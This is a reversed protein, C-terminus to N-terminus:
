EEGVEAEQEAAETKVKGKVEFCLAVVDFVAEVILSIGTFMWLIATSSFPSTIIVASCAISIVASIAALYWNKKKLRLMDVTWQVKGLGSVLIVVGYILTLIPFTVIFWESQFVCFGGALLGILGKLLAQSKAAEGPDTRFYKIISGLGSILLVVGCAIIIGSTFGVPSILLLVGVVLEFLCVLIGNMNEKVTKM